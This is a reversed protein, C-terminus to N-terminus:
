EMGRTINSFRADLENLLSQQELTLGELETGVDVKRTWFVDVIGIDAELVKEGFTEEM